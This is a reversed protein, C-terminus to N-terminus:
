VIVCQACDGSDGGEGSVNVNPAATWSVEPSLSEQLADWMMRPNLQDFQVQTLGRVYEDIAENIRDTSVEALSQQHRASMKCTNVDWRMSVWEGHPFLEHFNPYTDTLPEIGVLNNQSLLYDADEKNRTLVIVTATTNRVQSKLAMILEGDQPSCGFDDLILYPKRTRAYDASHLCNFLCKLWGSPPNRPSMGLATLMSLVYPQGNVGTQACFAIGQRHEQFQHLFQKAATTKGLGSPVMVVFVKGNGKCHCMANLIPTPAYRRLRLHEQFGLVTSRNIMREFARRTVWEQTLIGNWDQVSELIIKSAHLAVNAAAIEGTARVM